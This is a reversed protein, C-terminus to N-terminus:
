KKMKLGFKKSKQKVKAKAKDYKELGFHQVREGNITSLQHWLNQSWKGINRCLAAAKEALEDKPIEARM